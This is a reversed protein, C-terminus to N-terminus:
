LIPVGESTAMTLVGQGHQGLHAREEQEHNVDAPRAKKPVAAVAGGRWSNPVRAVAKKKKDCFLDTLHPSFSQATAELM